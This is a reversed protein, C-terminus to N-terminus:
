EPIEVEAGADSFVQGIIEAYGRCPADEAPLRLV